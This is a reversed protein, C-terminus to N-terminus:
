VKLLCGLVIFWLLRFGEEAGLKPTVILEGSGVIMASIILGPGLQRLVGGLHRPPALTTASATM